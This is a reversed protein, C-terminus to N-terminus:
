VVSSASYVSFWSELVKLIYSSFNKDRGEENTPVCTYIAKTLFCVCFVADSSPSLHSSSSTFISDAEQSM